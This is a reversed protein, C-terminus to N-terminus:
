LFFVYSKVIDGNCKVIYETVDLKRNTEYFGALIRESHMQVLLPQGLFIYITNKVSIVIKRGNRQVITFSYYEEFYRIKKAKSVM